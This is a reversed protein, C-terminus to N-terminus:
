GLEEALARAIRLSNESDSHVCVTRADMGVTSGAISRMRGTENYSQIRGVIEKLDSLVAGETGRDVLTGDPRYARDAFIEQWLRVEHREALRALNGGALAFIKAKPWFRAVTELYVIALSSDREVDHYLAGHLKIHNLKMRNSQAVRELGSIQQILLLEFDSPSLQMSKRGFNERDWYGPHAGVNVGEERALRACHDMSRLDGAHGGCAINASSIARMLARQRTPTEGEGLDCNLDLKQFRARVASAIGATPTRPNATPASSFLRLM